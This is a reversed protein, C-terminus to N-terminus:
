CSCFEDKCFSLLKSCFSFVRITATTTMLVVIITTIKLHSYRFEGAKSKTPAPHARHAACSELRKHLRKDTPVTFCRIQEGFIWKQSIANNCWSDFVIHLWSFNIAIKGVSKLPGESYTHSTHSFWIKEPLPAAAFLSEPCEHSCSSISEPQGQELTARCGQTYLM